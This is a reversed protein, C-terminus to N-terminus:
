QCEVLLLHRPLWYLQSRVRAWSHSTEAKKERRNEIVVFMKLKVFLCERAEIQKM